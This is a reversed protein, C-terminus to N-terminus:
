LGGEAPQQPSIDVTITGTAPLYQRVFEPGPLGSRDRLEDLAEQTLGPALPWRSDDSWVIGGGVGAVAAQIQLRLMPALSEPLADPDFYRVDVTEDADPQLVGGAPEAALVIVHYGDDRWHPRSYVGVLRTCQVELGTEEYVERMAAQVVTEGREVLGGPLSWTGYREGQILLVQSGCMVIVSAVVRPM